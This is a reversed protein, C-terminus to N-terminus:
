EYLQQVTITVNAYGSHSDIHGGSKVSILKEPHMRAIGEAM